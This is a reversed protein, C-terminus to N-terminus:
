ESAGSASTQEETLRGHEVHFMKYDSPPVEWLLSPDPREIATMFVQSGLRNLREALLRRHVLDLEANIDDLLFTVQKGRTALVEGQSLKM